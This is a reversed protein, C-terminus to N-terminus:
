AKGKTQSQGRQQGRRGGEQKRILGVIGPIISNEIQDRWDSLNKSAVDDEVIAGVLFKRARKFYEAKNVQPYEYFGLALHYLTQKIAEKIPMSMTPNKELYLNRLESYVGLEGLRKYKKAGSSSKKNSDEPSSGSPPEKKQMQLSELIAPEIYLGAKIASLPDILWMKGEKKTIIRKQLAMHRITRESIPKDLAQSRRAIKSLEQPTVWRMSYREMMAAMIEAIEPM